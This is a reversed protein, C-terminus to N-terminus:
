ESPAGSPAAQKRPVLTIKSAVGDEHKVKVRAKGEAREKFKALDFKRATTGKPTVWETEDTITVTVDEGSEKATVVIKKADPDVSKVTGFLEAALASGAILLAATGASLVMKLTRNM